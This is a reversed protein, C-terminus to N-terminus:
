ASRSAMPLGHRASCSAPMFWTQAAAGCGVWFIPIDSTKGAGLNTSAQMWASAFLEGPWRM